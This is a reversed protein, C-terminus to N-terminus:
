FFVHLELGIRDLDTTAQPIDDLLTYFASIELFQVPFVEVGFRWRARANEAIDRNPDLFGYTTKINFGPVVLFDGEVYAAFQDVDDSAEFSDFIYDLEGLLVFRGFSVGGFGGVVDRRSEPGDNRSASAGFRFRRFVLAATGTVQKGSNNEDAGQTGNTLSVFFSLPGPEIGVEVGEDPTFYNFGTRQRIFEADDVLRLGYPLFFKGAKFYGDLPFELLAFAERTRAGGPGLLQDVYFTLLNPIVRAEIQLSEETIGLASQPTADSVAASALARFNAGVSLFGNLSRNLFKFKLMALRTQAYVSGFDNRGGGGTKNVHCQSCKLGTRVSLYPEDDAVLGEPTLALLCAGLVASACDRRFRTM